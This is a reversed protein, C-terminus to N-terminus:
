RTMDFTNCLTKSTVFPTQPRGIPTLSGWGQRKGKDRDVSIGSNTAMILDGGSRSSNKSGMLFTLPLVLKQVTAQETCGRFLRMPQHVSHQLKMIFNFKLAFEYVRNSRLARVWYLRAYEIATKNTWPTSRKIEADTEDILDYAVFTDMSGIVSGYQIRITKQCERLSKTRTPIRSSM